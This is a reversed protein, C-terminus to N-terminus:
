NGHATGDDSPGGAVGLSTSVNVLFLNQLNGHDDEVANIGILMMVSKIFTHNGTVTVTAGKDTLSCVTVAGGAVASPEGLSPFVVDSELRLTNSNAVTSLVENINDNYQQQSTAVDVWPPLRLHPPWILEAKGRVLFNAVEWGACLPGQKVEMHFYEFGANLHRHLSFITPKVGDCVDDPGDKLTWEKEWINM